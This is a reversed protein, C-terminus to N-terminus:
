LLEADIARWLVTVARERAVEQLPLLTGDSNGQVLGADVCWAMGKVAYDSVDDVDSFDALSALADEELIADELSEDGGNAYRAIVLCMHEFSIADGVGFEGDSYGLMIDNEEAWNVAATYYANDAVDTLGSANTADNEYAAYEDPCAIRWLITVFQERTLEDGVGFEGNSYGVVAGLDAIAYVEDYYYASPTIVDSFYTGTSYSSSYNTGVTSGPASGGKDVLKIQIALVRKSLGTTGATEGNSAWGLWGYGKVYVRYYVDYEEALEDTLKIQVAEVRKSSSTSGATSGDSKWSQWGSGQMYARYTISGDYDADVLKIQLAEVQLSLQTSGSSSGNYKWAQWCDYTDLYSRYAVEIGDDSDTKSLGYYNAIGTADAVGLKKLNSESKLFSANSSSDVYAHEVIIGVIGYQRAYRIIGYYDADSGDSYTNGSESDRTLVGRDKLGLAVIEELISEGLDEGVTHLEYLYSSDNPVYVEAGSGGGANCHLSVIVDAGYAVARKVRTEISLLTEDETKTVVVEVGEYTELEAKCYTMITWNLESETLGNASAGGDSGGHGPDLAVVLHDTTSSTSLTELAGASELAEEVSDAAELTGEDTISAVTVDEADGDASSGFAEATEESVVDFLYTDEELALEIVYTDSSGALTYEISTPQWCTADDDDEFAFAFLVTAGEFATAEVTKSAGTEPSVLTLTASEFVASDDTLAIVINQDEGVAVLSSELYLYEINDLSVETVADSAGAGTTGSDESAGADAADAETSDTPVEESIESSDDDLENGGTDDDLSAAVDSATDADEDATEADIMADLLISADTSSDEADALAWAYSVPTSSFTLVIILLVSMFRQLFKSM